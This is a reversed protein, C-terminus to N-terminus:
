NGSNVKINVDNKVSTQSSSNSTTNCNVKVNIDGSSKENVNVSGAPVTTTVGNKTVTCTGSQTGTGKVNDNIKIDASNSATTTSINQGASESATVKRTSVKQGNEKKFLTPNTFSAIVLIIAIFLLPSFKILSKKEFMKM